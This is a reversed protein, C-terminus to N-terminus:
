LGGAVTTVGEVGGKVMVRSVLCAAVLGATVRVMPLPLYEDGDGDSGGGDVSGESGGGGGVMARAVEEMAMEEDIESEGTLGAATLGALLAGGVRGMGQKTAMAAVRGVGSKSMFFAWLRRVGEVTRVDDGALVVARARAVVVVWAAAALSVLRSAAPWDTVGLELRRRMRDRNGRPSVLEALGAGILFIMRAQRGLSTAVKTLGATLVRSVTEM